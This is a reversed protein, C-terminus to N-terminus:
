RGRSQHTAQLDDGRDGWQAVFPAVFPAVFRLGSRKDVICSRWWAQLREHKFDNQGEKPRDDDAGAHAGTGERGGHHKQGALRVLM